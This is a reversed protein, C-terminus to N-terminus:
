KLLELVDRVGVRGVVVLKSAVESRAAAFELLQASLHLPELRLFLDQAKM